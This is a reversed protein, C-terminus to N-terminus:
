ASVGLIKAVESVIETMAAAKKAASMGQLAKGDRPRVQMQALWKIQRWACDSVIIPIIKLGEQDRRLLMNTIEDDLIFKSTLSNASVLLIAVQAKQLADEIEHRWDEGTGIQRDTWIDLTGQLVRLQKEIRDKWKEDEHSYSIFVSPKNM